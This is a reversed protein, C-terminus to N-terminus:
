MSGQNTAEWLKHMLLLRQQESTVSQLFALREAGAELSMAKALFQEHTEKAKALAADREGSEMSKLEDLISQQLNAAKAAMKLQERQREENQEEMRFNAPAGDEDTTGAGGALEATTIDKESYRVGVVRTVGGDNRDSLGMNMEEHEMAKKAAAQMNLLFNSIAGQLEVDDQDNDNDNSGDISEGETMIRRMESGGYNPDFGIACFVMHQLHLVRAAATLGDGSDDESGFYAGNVYENKGVEYAFIDIGRALHAEVEPLKIATTCLACFELLTSRDLKVVIGSSICDRSNSNESKHLKRRTHEYNIPGARRVSLRSQENENESEKKREMKAWASEAHLVSRAFALRATDNMKSMAALLQEKLEDNGNTLNQTYENDGLARLATQIDDAAVTTKYDAITATDELASLQIQLLLRRHAELAVPVFYEGVSDGNTETEGDMPKLLENRVELSPHNELQKTTSKFFTLIASALQSEAQPTIGGNGDNDSLKKDDDNDEGDESTDADEASGGTVYNYGNKLKSFISSVVGLNAKEIPVAKTSMWTNVLNFCLKEDIVGNGIKGIEARADNTIYKGTKDLVILSPISNICLKASLSKSIKSQTLPLSLWPMTGSYADFEEISRDSSIFVIEVNTKPNKKCTQYFEKLVPSFARCPPCWSASFYLLVLDAEKLLDQTSIGVGPAAHLAPGLLNEMM